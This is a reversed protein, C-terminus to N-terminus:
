GLIEKIKVGREIQKIDNPTILEVRKGFHRFIVQKFAFDGVGRMDEFQKRDYTNMKMWNVCDSPSLINVFRTIMLEWEHDVSDQEHFKHECFSCVYLEGSEDIGIIDETAECNKCNCQNSEGCVPCLIIAVM